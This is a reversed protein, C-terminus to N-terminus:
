KGVPNRRVRWEVWGKAIVCFVSAVAFCFAQLAHTMPRPDQKSISYGWLGLALLAFVFPMLWGKFSMHPLLPRLFWPLQLDKRAAAAVLYESDHTKAEAKAQLALAKSSDGNYWWTYWTTMAFIATPGIAWQVVEAPSAGQIMRWTTLVFVMAAGKAASVLTRKLRNSM